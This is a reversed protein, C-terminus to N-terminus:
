ELNLLSLLTQNVNLTNKLSKGDNSLQNESQAYSTSFEKLIGRIMLNKPTNEMDIFELLQTKYGMSELAEVRLVDTALASFREKVIGHKLLANLSPESCQKKLQSNIEHQCCPVSLIGKSKHEVAYALAYDTATDCAHLTIVLDLPNEADKQSDRYEAIDGTTFILSEYGCKEALSNCHNIVDKKLDLGKINAKLGKIIVLYHYLAFTLYSKGCGFDTIELPRKQAKDEDLIPKLIEPLIDDVFELFRNIQKFKDYKQNHVKGDKTMVGLEVLFPVAVGEKLIYNKTKNHPLSTLSQVPSVAKKKKLLKKEGKKNTLVTLTAERTEVTINKYQSIFDNTFFFLIKEATYLKHFVQTNKYSSTSFEMKEPNSLKIRIKDFEINEITKLPNSFTASLLNGCNQLIEDNFFDM